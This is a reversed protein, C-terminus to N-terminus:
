SAVNGDNKGGSNGDCKETYTIVNQKSEQLFSSLVQLITLVKENFFHQRAWWLM